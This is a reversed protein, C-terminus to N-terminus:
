TTGPVYDTRPVTYMTQMIKSTSGYGLWGCGLKTSFNNYQLKSGNLSHDRSTYYLSNYLSIDRANDRLIQHM